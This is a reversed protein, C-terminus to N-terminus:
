EDQM